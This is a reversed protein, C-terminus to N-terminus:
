SNNVGSELRLNLKPKRFKKRIGNGPMTLCMPRGETKPSPKVVGSSAMSKLQSYYNFGQAGRLNVHVRVCSSHGWEHTWDLMTDLM